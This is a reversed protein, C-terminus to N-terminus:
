NETNPTKLITNYIWCFQSALSFVTWAIVTLTLEYKMSYM